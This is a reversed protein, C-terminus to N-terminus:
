KELTVKTIITGSPLDKVQSFIKALSSYHVYIDEIVINERVLKGNLFPPIIYGYCQGPRLKDKNNEIENVLWPMFWENAQEENALLKNFEDINSAVIEFTGSALDLFYINQHGDSLFSDGFLTMLVPKFNGKVLFSWKALLKDFDIGSFDITLKEINM